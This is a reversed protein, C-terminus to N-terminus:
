EKERGAQRNDPEPASITNIIALAEAWEESGEVWPALEARILECADVCFAHFEEEGMSSFATSKFQIAHTTGDIAPRPLPVVDYYGKKIKVWRKLGAIDTQAPGRNVATAILGLMVHFLASFKGNRDRDIKVRLREGEHFKAFDDRFRQYPVFRDGVRQGWMTTM